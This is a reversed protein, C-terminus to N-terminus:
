RKAPRGAIMNEAQTSLSLEATWEKQNSSSFHLFVPIYFQPISRHHNRLFSVLHINSLCRGLPNIVWCGVAHLWKEPYWIHLKHLVTPRFMMVWYTVGNEPRVYAKLTQAVHPQPTPSTPTQSDISCSWNIVYLSIPFPAPSITTVSKHQQIIM